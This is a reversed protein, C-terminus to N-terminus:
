VHRILHLSIPSFLFYHVQKFSKILVAITEEYSRGVMRGLKHYMEGLSAIAALRTPLYSPSDDKSKVYDNCTNIALHLSYTDGVSFLTGLNRAILTRTTPGPSKELQNLLIKLIHEQKEKIDTKIFM